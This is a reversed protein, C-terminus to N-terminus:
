KKRSATAEHLLKWEQNHVEHMDYEQHPTELIIPIDRESCHELLTAVGEMTNQTIFGKGINEHRDVCCGRKKKCDNLHILAVNEWQIHTEVLEIFLQMEEQTELAYGASFVHCTDICIRFHEKQEPHFQHYFHGLDEIRSLLETGCGASTELIYDISMEREQIRHILISIFEFMHTLGEQATQKLHKGVHFVVGRAGLRHACEIDNWACEIKIDWKERTASNLLYSGHVFLRFQNEELYAPCTSEVTEPKKIEYSRPSKVFCQFAYINSNRHALAISKEFSHHRISIHYGFM